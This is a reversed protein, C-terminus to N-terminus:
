RQAERAAREADVKRQYAEERDAEGSLVWRDSSRRQAMRRNTGTVISRRSYAEAERAGKRGPLRANPGGTAWLWATRLVKLGHIAAERREQELDTRAFRYGTWWWRV